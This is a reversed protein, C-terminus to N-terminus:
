GEVLDFFSQMFVLHNLVDGLGTPELTTHGVLRSRLVSVLTHAELRRRLADLQEIPVLPDGVGHLLFMPVGRLAGLERPWHAPSFAVLQDWADRLLDERGATWAAPGALLMAAFDRAAETELGEPPTRPVEEAALWAALRRADPSDGFRSRLAARAGYNRAFAAANRRQWTLSSGGEPDPNPLAYWGAAAKSVDDPMGIALFAALGHGGGRLWACCSKLAVAAGVSIGVVGVRYGYAGEIEGAALAEMLRRLRRVDDDRVTPDVMFRLEPAVVCFGAAHFADIARLIRGDEIGVPAVGHVFVLSPHPGPGAPAKVWARRVGFRAPDALERYGSPLPGGPERDAPLTAEFRTLCRVADLRPLVAWAVAALAIVLALALCGLVARWAM